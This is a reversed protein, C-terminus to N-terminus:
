SARQFRLEEYDENNIFLNVARLASNVGDEHFGYAWYAGCYYTNNVGNIESWRKQANIATQDFVPHDYSIKRLIRKPDIADTNNLTVCFVTESDLSQLINMNYTLIVRDGNNPVFYNWAAWASPRTPLLSSDTHLVAENHQYRISGLIEKEAPSPDQLMTLAQDSHSAIFVKDFSRSEGSTMTIKVLGSRRDIRSIPANLHIRDRFPAILEGIYSKSGGKIVHWQPRNNISLLGHNKFFGIFTRAPFELMLKPDTSWIASGMPIIYNDMFYRSYRHSHLYDGLTKSYHAEYLVNPAQWNFRLIELLMLYHSPRLWNRKQTFMTSLSSGSYELNYRQSKVSFSMDTNQYEVGISKIINIFNPYTWDNFVIFGTDIAYNNGDHVVNVTNTHGGVYNNAEFIEIDHDRYLKHAAVMGSIGTGIIAIRM